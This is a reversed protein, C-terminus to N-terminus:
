REKEVERAEIVDRSGVKRLDDLVLVWCRVLEELWGGATMFGETGVRYHM